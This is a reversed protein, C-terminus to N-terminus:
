TSSFVADNVLDFDSSVVFVVCSLREDISFHTIEGSIEKTWKRDENRPGEIKTTAFESWSQVAFIPFAIDYM